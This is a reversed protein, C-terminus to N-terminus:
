ALKAKVAPWVTFYGAGILSLGAEAPSKTQRGADLCPLSIGRPPILGEAFLLFREQSSYM